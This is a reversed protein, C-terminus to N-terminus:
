AKGDGAKILLAKVQGLWGNDVMEDAENLLM